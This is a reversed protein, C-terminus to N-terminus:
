EIMTRPQIIETEKRGSTALRFPAPGEYWWHIDEVDGTRRDTIYEKEAWGLNVLDGMTFEGRMYSANYVVPMYGAEIEAKLRALRKENDLMDGDMADM